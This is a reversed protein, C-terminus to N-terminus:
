KFNISTRVIPRSDISFQFEPITEKDSAPTAAPRAKRFNDANEVWMRETKPSIFYWKVWGCRPCTTIPVVSKLHEGTIGLKSREEPGLWSTTCCCYIGSEYAPAEENMKRPIVREENVM